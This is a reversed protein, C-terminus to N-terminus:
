MAWNMMQRRTRQAFYAATPNATAVTAAVPKPVTTLPALNTRAGVPIAPLITAALTHPTPFNTALFAFALHFLSPPSPPTSPLSLTYLPILSSLINCSPYSPPPAATGHHVNHRHSPQELRPAQETVDRSDALRLGSGIIGNCPGTKQEHLRLVNCARGIRCEWKCCARLVSGTLLGDYRWYM